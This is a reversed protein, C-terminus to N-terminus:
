SFSLSLVLRQADAAAEKVLAQHGQRLLPVVLEGDLAAAVGGAGVVELQPRYGGGLLKVDLDAVDDLLVPGGLAGAVDLRRSRLVLVGEGGRLTLLYVQM